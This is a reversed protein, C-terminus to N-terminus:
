TVFCASPSPFLGAPALCPPEPFPHGQRMAAPNLLYPAYVFAMAMALHGTERGAAVKSCKEWVPWDPNTM